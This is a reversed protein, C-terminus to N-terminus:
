FRGRVVYGAWAHRGFEPRVSVRTADATPTGRLAIDAIAIAVAGAAVGLGINRTRESDKMADEAALVDARAAAIESEDIADDYRLRAARWADRDDRFSSEGLFAAAIGGAEAATLAWGLWPRGLSRQGQGAVLASYLLARGRDYPELTVRIHLDDSPAFARIRKTAARYGKLDLRVSHEGVEVPIVEALPLTGVVRGDVQARAGAPGDIHLQAAHAVAIATSWVLVGLVCARRVAVGANSRPDPM